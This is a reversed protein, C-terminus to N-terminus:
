SSSKAKMKNESVASLGSAFLALHDRYSGENAPLMKSGKVLSVQVKRALSEPTDKSDPQVPEGWTFTLETSGLTLFFLTGELVGLCALSFHPNSFELRLAQTPALNEFAGLKFPVVFESNTLTGECFILLREGQGLARLSDLRAKIQLKAGERSKANHRDVVISGVHLALQKFGPGILPVNSVGESMVFGFNLTAGLIIFDIWSIHNAVVLPADKVSAAKGRWNIASVGALWGVVNGCIHAIRLSIKPSTIWASGAAVFVFGLIGLFKFPAVTIARFIMLWLPPLSDSQPRLFPRWEAPLEKSNRLRDHSYTRGRVIIVSRLALFQLLIILSGFLICILYFFSGSRWSIAGGREDFTGSTTSM